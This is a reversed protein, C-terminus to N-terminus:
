RTDVKTQYHSQNTYRYTCNWIIPSKTSLMGIEKMFNTTHLLTNQFDTVNVKINEESNGPNMISDNNKHSNKVEEILGILKDYMDHTINQSNTATTIAMPCTKKHRSLASLHSYKKNCYRCTNVPIATQVTSHVVPSDVHLGENKVMTQHKRTSIHTDYNSKYSCKFHCIKCEYGGENKKGNLSDSM